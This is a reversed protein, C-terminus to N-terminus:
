SKKGGRILNLVKEALNPTMGNILLMDDISYPNSTFASQSLNKVDIPDNECLVVIQEPSYIAAFRILEYYTLYKVRRLKLVKKLKEVYSKTGLSPEHKESYDCQPCGTHSFESGCAPCSKGAEKDKGCVPCVVEKEYGCKPCNWLGM